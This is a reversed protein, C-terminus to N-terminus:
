EAEIEAMRRMVEDHIRENNAKYKFKGPYGFENMHEVEHEADIKNYLHDYRAQDNDEKRDRDSLLSDPVTAFNM